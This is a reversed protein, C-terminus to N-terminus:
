LRSIIHDRNRYYWKYAISRMWEPVSYTTNEIWLLNILDVDEIPHNYRLKFAITFRDLEDGSNDVIRFIHTIDPM